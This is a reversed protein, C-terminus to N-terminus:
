TTERGMADLMFFRPYIKKTQNIRAALGPRMYICGGEQICHLASDYVEYRSDPAGQM